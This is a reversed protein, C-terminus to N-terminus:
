KFSLYCISSVVFSALSSRLTRLLFSAVTVCRRSVIPWRSDERWSYSLHGLLLTLLSRADWVRLTM